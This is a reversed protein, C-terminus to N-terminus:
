LRIVEFISGGICRLSRNAARATNVTSRGCVPAEEIEILDEATLQECGMAVVEKSYLEEVKKEYRIKFEYPQKQKVMFSIVAESNKTTAM